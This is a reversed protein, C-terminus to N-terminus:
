SRKRRQVEYKMPDVEVKRFYSFHKLFRDAHACLEGCYKKGDQTYPTGAIITPCGACKTKLFPHPTWAM